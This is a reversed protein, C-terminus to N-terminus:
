GGAEMLIPLGKEPIDACRTSLTNIAAKGINLIKRGDIPKGAVTTRM